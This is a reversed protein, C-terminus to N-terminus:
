KLIPHRKFPITRDFIYRYTALTRSVHVDGLSKGINVMKPNFDGMWQMEYERYSLKPSTITKYAAGIIYADVGKAQWEPVVGFAIGVFRTNAKFAKLWLFYIKQLWGFKGNLHKFWQNLDPINIFMAIPDEKYYAFWVINEDMVPKMEILTALMQEKSIQKMGAHGAWAKNYITAFDSAYKPLDKKDIHRASINADQCLKNYRVAVKEPLPAKADMKFCTQNYFVQFGYNEFLERYYPANYNMCYLSEHFGSLLLGWFKNREGFNIPGDMAEMGNERLWHKANDFLLDAYNQDNICEFFGIGGVPFEDGMNKYKTNVFAAIRGAPENKDDLLIWRRTKGTRYLKNKKTDFVDNIDKDLPHIWNPDNKYIKKSVSLFLKEDQKNEVGIIKM